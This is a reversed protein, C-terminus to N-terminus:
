TDIVKGVFPQGQAPPNNRRSYAAKIVRDVLASRPFQKSLAWDIASKLDDYRETELREWEKRQKSSDFGEWRGRGYVANERLYKALPTQPVFKHRKPKDDDGSDLISKPIVGSGGSIPVATEATSSNQNSIIVSPEPAIQRSIADSNQVGAFNADGWPVPIIYENTGRPGGNKVTTIEGRKELCRLLYDVNRVSQRCKHALSDVGPYAGRGDDHAHDAIALLLLLASGKAKSNEWM